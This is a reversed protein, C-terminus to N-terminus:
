NLSVTPKEGSLNGRRPLKHWFATSDGSPRTSPDPVVMLDPRIVLLHLSDHLVISNFPVEAYHNRINETRETFSVPEQRYSGTYAISALIILTTSAKAARHKHHPLPSEFGWSTAVALGELKNINM